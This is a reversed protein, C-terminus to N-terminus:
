GDIGGEEFANWLEPDDIEDDDDMRGRRDARSASRTNDYVVWVDAIRRYLDFFNASGPRYRRRITEEPMHHGGPRCEGAVRSVSFDANPSLLFLLRFDYGSRRLRAIRPALSRSALTTEVAFDAADQELEDMRELVIRGAEIDSRGAFSIGATEQRDRRCQRVDDARSAAASGRDIQGRWETRRPRRVLPEIRWRRRGRDRRRAGERYAGALGDIEAKTRKETVAVLIGDALEPIGAAWPSGATTAWDASRPWSARGPGEQLPRRVGQLVPRRVRAVPRPGRGAARGRLPGQPDLARRGAASGTPGVAALYISARLALLGQNTCINSTAKERRIHQERTQLTLVLCRKGHRDTTQGVVRGPM